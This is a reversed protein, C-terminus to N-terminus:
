RSSSAAVVTTNGIGIEGLVILGCRGAVDHALAHSASSNPASPAPGVRRARARRPGAAAAVQGSVRASYLSVGRTSVGHDAAFVIIGAHPLSPPPIGAATARREIV